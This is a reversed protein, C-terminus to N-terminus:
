RVELHLLQAVLGNCAVVEAGRALLEKLLRVGAADVYSVASLDLGAAGGAAASADRLADVWPGLLKGELKLAPRVGAGPVRTIRLM